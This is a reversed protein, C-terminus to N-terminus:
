EFVEETCGGAEGRDREEGFRDRYEQVLGRILEPRPAAAMQDAMARQLRRTLLKRADRSPHVAGPREDAFVHQNRKELARIVHTPRFKKDKFAALVTGAAWSGAVGTGNVAAIVEMDLARAAVEEVVAQRMEQTCTGAVGLQEVGVGALQFTKDLAARVAKSKCASVSAAYSMSAITEGDEDVVRDRVGKNMLERLETVGLDELIGLKDLVGSGGFADKVLGRERVTPTSWKVGDSGELSRKAMKVPSRSVGLEQDVAGIDRGEGEMM